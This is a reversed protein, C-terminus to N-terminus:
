AAERFGEHLRLSGNSVGNWLYVLKLLTLAPVIVAIQSKYELIARDRARIYPAVDIYVNNNNRRVFYDFFRIEPKEQWDLANVADQVMRGVAVHDPHPYVPNEHESTYIVYPHYEAIRSKIAELTTENYQVGGDPFRLFITEDTGIVATASKAEEERALALENGRRRWPDYMWAGGSTVFVEVIKDGVSSHYCAAGGAFIEGDDPHPSIILVTREDNLAGEASCESLAIFLGLVILKLAKVISLLM